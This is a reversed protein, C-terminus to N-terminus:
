SNVYNTRLKHNVPSLGDFSFKNPEFTALSILINGDTIGIADVDNLQVLNSISSEATLPPNFTIVGTSKDIIMKDVENINDRIVFNSNSLGITYREIDELNNKIVQPEILGDAPTNTSLNMLTKNFKIKEYLKINEQKKINEQNTRELERKQKQKLYYVRNKIEWEPKTPKTPTKTVVEQPAVEVTTEATAKKAM